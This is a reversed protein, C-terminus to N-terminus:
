SNVIIRSSDFSPIERADMQLNVEAFNTPEDNPNASTGLEILADSIGPIKFIPTYLEKRIVLSGVGFGEYGSNEDGTVFKLVEDKVADDGGDPFFEGGNILTLTIRVWVYIPAPRSFKIAQSRGMSDTIIVTTNGYSEIGAGGIEWIKNAIDENTGGQVVCEYSNPPRGGIEIIKGNNPIVDVFTVGAVENTLKAEIAPVTANGQERPALKDRLRVSTDSEKTRGVIGDVFNNVGLWGDIPAQIQNLTGALAIVAGSEQATFNAKSWLETIAIKEDIGASFTIDYNNTTITIISQIDASVEIPLGLSDLETVLKNAIIQKTASAGSDVLAQVGNIVIYYNTSDAITQIDLLLKVSKQITIETDEDLVFVNQTNEVKVQKGKPVVTGEVGKIAAAVITYDAGNRIVGILLSINDLPVGNASSPYQSYYVGEGLDWIDSLRSSVVGLIVNIVKYTSDDIQNGFQSAIDDTMEQKIIDLRKKIFGNVTLGYEIVETSM